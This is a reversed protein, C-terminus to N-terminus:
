ALPPDFLDNTVTDVIKIDRKGTLNGGSTTFIDKSIVLDMVTEIEAATLAEKPEPLTITFSSGATTDFVLRLNKTTTIAM